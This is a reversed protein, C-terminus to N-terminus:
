LEWSFEVELEEKAEKKDKEPCVAKVSHLLSLPKFLASEVIKHNSLALDLRWCMGSRSVAKKRTQLRDSESQTRWPLSLSRERRRNKEQVPQIERCDLLSELTKKLVM